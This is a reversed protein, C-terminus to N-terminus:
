EDLTVILPAGANMAHARSAESALMITGPVAQSWFLDHWWEMRPLDIRQPQPATTFKYLGTIGAAWYGDRVRALDFFAESVVRQRGYVNQTVDRAFITEPSLGCIRLIRGSSTFHVVGAAVIVCDEHHADPIIAHINDDLQDYRRDPGLRDKTDKVDDVTGTALNIRTLGGGWEGRDSGVYVADGKATAGATMDGFPWSGKPNRTLTM